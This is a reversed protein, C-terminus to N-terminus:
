DGAGVDQVVLGQVFDTESREHEDLRTAADFRRQDELEVQELGRAGELHPPCERLYQRCIRWVRKQHREVLEGFADRDGNRARMVLADDSQSLDARTPM